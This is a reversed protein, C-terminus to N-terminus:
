SPRSEPAPSRPRAVRARRCASAQPTCRQTRTRAPATAVPDPPVASSPRRRLSRNPADCRTRRLSRELRLRSRRSAITTICASKTKMSGAAAPRRSYAPVPRFRRATPLPDPRAKLHIQISRRHDFTRTLPDHTPYAKKYPTQRGGRRREAAEIAEVKAVPLM